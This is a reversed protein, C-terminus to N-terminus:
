LLHENLGAVSQHPGFYLIDFEVPFIQLCSLVAAFLYDGFLGDPCITRINIVAKIPTRKKLTLEPALSDKTCAPEVVAAWSAPMVTM